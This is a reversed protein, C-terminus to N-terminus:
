DEISFEASLMNDNSHQGLWIQFKGPEIVKELKENHFALASTELTFSVIRSEGAEM